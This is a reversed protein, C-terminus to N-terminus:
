SKLRDKLYSLSRKYADETAVKDYKPNSPNAFAHDAEYLKVTITEGAEKMKGEFQEVTKLPIFGDKSGFLGLVDTQLMKLKAVDMEPFGYYMVCAKAQPGALIASQLSMAGGFCWGVSGIQAKPGAFGIAGKMIAGLRAQDAGQMLKAADEQKTAVQGDYLDVALVNVDSLDDYYAEARQKIYDNLGWWEQYVLLWKDSNKRAKLLFGNATKGDPTTFKIMEGARSVYRFPLPDLHQAIFDPHSAFAAMGNSVSVTHCVPIAAPQPKTPAFFSLLVSVFSIFIIKM